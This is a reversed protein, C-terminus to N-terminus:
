SKPKALTRVFNVLHWREEATLKPDDYAPMIGKIGRTVKWYLEGDSLKSMRETNSLNAPKRRLKPLNAENGSGTEGHCFVCNGKPTMFLDQGKAISEDNATTPNETKAADAPLDWTNKSFDPTPRPAQAPGAPTPSGVQQSLIASASENNRAFSRLGMASLALCSTCILLTIFKSFRM